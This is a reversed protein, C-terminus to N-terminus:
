VIVLPGQIEECKSIFVATVLNKNIYVSFFVLFVFCDRFLLHSYYAAHKFVCEFSYIFITGTDVPM